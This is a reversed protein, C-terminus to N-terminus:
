TLIGHHGRNRSKVSTSGASVPVGKPVAAVTVVIDLNDFTIGRNDETAKIALNIVGDRSSLDPTDEV